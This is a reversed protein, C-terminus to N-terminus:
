PPLNEQTRLSDHVAEAFGDGDPEDAEKEALEGRTGRAAVDRLGVVHGPVVWFASGLTHGGHKEVAHDPEQSQCYDSDEADTEGPCTNGRLRNQSGQGHDNRSGEESARGCAGQEKPSPEAPM